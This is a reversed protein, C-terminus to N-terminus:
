KNRDIISIKFINVGRKMRKIRKIKVENIKKKAWINEIKERIKKIERKYKCLEKDDSWLRYNEYTNYLKNNM